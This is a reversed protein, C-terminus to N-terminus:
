EVEDLMMIPFIPPLCECGSVCVGVVAWTGEEVGSMVGVCWGVEMSGGVAGVGCYM